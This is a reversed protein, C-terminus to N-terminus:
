YGYICRVSVYYTSIFSTVDTITYQATLELQTRWWVNPMHSLLFLLNKFITSNKKHLLKWIYQFIRLSRTIVPKNSEFQQFIGVNSSAHHQWTTLICASRNTHTHEDDTARVIKSEWIHPHLPGILWTKVTWNQKRENPPKLSQKIFQHNKM